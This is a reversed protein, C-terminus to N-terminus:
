PLQQFKQVRWNKIETVYIAGTSDVAINHAFDLQGPQKGYEGYAGLVQGDLNLKVIRNNRGDCMYIANERAVFYLGWPEGANRWQALFKGQADFVQIRANNRDAIYVRGQKDICVDHVLDFEGEGKGKSGWQYQFLGDRGFRVVRANVYGDSLYFDGSPLFALGTPENFADKSDNNGAQFRVGGIAMLVRGSPTLKLVTHGKVDVTWINGEPDVRIGHSSKVPVDDWTRLFRGSKDFLLVPHSGRNFVWVNDDKDVDVGTTEGLNWGAPLQPWNPDVKLKLAPFTQAHAAMLTVFLWAARSSPHKM